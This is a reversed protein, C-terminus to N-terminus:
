AFMRPVDRFAAARRRGAPPQVGPGGGARDGMGGFARRRRAAGCSPFTPGGPGRRRQLAHAAPPPVRGPDAGGPVGPGGARRRSRQRADRRIRGRGPAQRHHDGGTERLHRVRATGHAAAGSLVARSSVSRADRHERHYQGNPLYSNGHIACNTLLHAPFPRAPRTRTFAGRPLSPSAPVPGPPQQRVARRMCWLATMRLSRERWLRTMVIPKRAVSPGERPRRLASRAAAIRGSPEAPLTRRGAGLHKTYAPHTAAGGEPHRNQRQFALIGGTARVRLM